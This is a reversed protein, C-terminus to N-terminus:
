RFYLINVDIDAGAALLNVDGVNGDYIWVAGAAIQFDTATAANGDHAFYVVGGIAPIAAQQTRDPVTLDQGAAATTLDTIRQDGNAYPASTDSSTLAAGMLVSLGMLILLTSNLVLARATWKLKREIESM